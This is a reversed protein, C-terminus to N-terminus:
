NSREHYPTLRRINIQENVSGRRIRVTGNTYVKTIPYPGERPTSMKRIIGPKEVLVKDGVRYQHKIRKKNERANSEDIVEIDLVTTTALCGGGGLIADGM